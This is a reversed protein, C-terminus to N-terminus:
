NIFEMITTFSFCRNEFEVPQTSALRPAFEDQYRNYKELDDAIFQICYTIGENPSDLVKLTRNSVFLNTDMISPILNNNAWNLWSDQIGEDMIITINYLVM